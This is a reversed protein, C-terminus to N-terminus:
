SINGTECEWRNHLEFHLDIALKVSDKGSIGNKAVHRLMRKRENRFTLSASCLVWGLNTPWRIESETERVLDFCPGYAHKMM